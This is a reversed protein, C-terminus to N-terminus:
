EAVNPFPTILSNGATIPVSITIGCKEYPTHVNYASPNDKESYKYEIGLTEYLENIKEDM